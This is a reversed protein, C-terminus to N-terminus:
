VRGLDAALTFLHLAKFHFLAIFGQLFCFKNPWFLPSLSTRKVPEGEKFRRGKMTIETSSVRLTYRDARIPRNQHFESPPFFCIPYSFSKEGMVFSERKNKSFYILPFSTSEDMALSDFTM